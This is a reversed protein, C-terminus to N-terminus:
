RAGKRPAWRKGTWVKWEGNEFAEDGVQQDTIDALSDFEEGQPSRAEREQPTYLNPYNNLLSKKKEEAQKKIRKLIQKNVNISHDVGPKEKQINQVRYKSAVGKVGESTLNVLRAAGNDFSETYENPLWKPAYAAKLAVTPGTDIKDVIDEMGDIVDIIEDLNNFQSSIADDHVKQAASREKEQANGAGGGARLFEALNAKKPPPPTETAVAKAAIQAPRQQSPNLRNGGALAEAQTLDPAEQLIPNTGPPGETANDLPSAFVKQGTGSEQDAEAKLDTLDKQLEPDSYIAHIGQSANEPNKNLFENITKYQLAPTQDLLWEITEDDINFKKFASRNREKKKNADSNPDRAQIDKLKTKAFTGLGTGL